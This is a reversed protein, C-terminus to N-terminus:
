KPIFSYDHQTSYWNVLTGTDIIDFIIQLYLVNYPHQSLEWDHMIRETVYQTFRETWISSYARPDITHLLEHVLVARRDGESLNFFKGSNLYIKGDKQEGIAERSDPVGDFIGPNGSFQVYQEIYSEAVPVVTDLYRQQEISFACAMPIKLFIGILLILYITLFILAVQEKLNLLSPIKYLPKKCKKCFYLQGNEYYQLGEEAINKHHCTM